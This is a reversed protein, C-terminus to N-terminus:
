DLCPTCKFYTYVMKAEALPNEHPSLTTIWQLDKLTDRLLPQLLRQFKGAIAKVSFFPLGIFGILRNRRLYSLNEYQPRAKGASLSKMWLSLYVFCDTACHEPNQVFYVISHIAGGMIADSHLVVFVEFLKYSPTL